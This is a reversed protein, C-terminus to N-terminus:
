TNVPYDDFRITNQHYITLRTGEVGGGPPVIGSGILASLVAQTHRRPSSFADGFVRRLVTALACAEAKNLKLDIETVETVPSAKAM